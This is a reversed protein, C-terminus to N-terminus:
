YASRDEEPMKWEPLCDIPTSGNKPTIRDPLRSDALMEPRLEQCLVGEKHALEKWRLSPKSLPTWVHVLKRNPIRKQVALVAPALDIDGSVLLAEDYSDSSVADLVLEIAINVDTQKEQRSKNNGLTHFGEIVDLNEITKVAQLWRYQKYEEGYHSLNKVPATFYKIQELVCGERMLHQTALKRFDCWGLGIPWNESEILDLLSYYFNFGDIYMWVKRM